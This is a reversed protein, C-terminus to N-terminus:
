AKGRRRTKPAMAAPAFLEETQKLERWCFSDSFPNLANTGSPWLMTFARELVGYDITQRAEQHTVLLAKVALTKLYSIRMDSAFALRRALDAWSDVLLTLQQHDLMSKFLELGVREKSYGGYEKIELRHIQLFRRRLQENISLLSITNPMGFLVFPIRCGDILSKLWDAIQYHTRDAGKELVHQVEDLLVLQIKCHGILRVIQTTSHGISENRKQVGLKDLIDAAISKITTHGSLNVLLVPRYTAEPTIVVPHDAELMEAMTTKGAGSEGTVLLHRVVGTEQYLQLNHMIQKKAQAFAPYDMLLTELSAEAAFINM